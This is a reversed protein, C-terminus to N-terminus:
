GPQQSMPQVGIRGVQKNQNQVVGQQLNQIYKQFLQQFLENGGQMAEQVGPSTSAIEQAFQMKSGATPDNSM